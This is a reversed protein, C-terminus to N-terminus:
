QLNQKVKVHSTNLYLLQIFLTFSIILKVKVHSTNLNYGIKGNVRIKVQKVKVHSTNLYCTDM